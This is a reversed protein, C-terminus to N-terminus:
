EGMGLLAKADEVHESLREEDDSFNARGLDIIKARNPDDKSRVINRLELDNHLIGAQSLAQVGRVASQNLEESLNEAGIDDFDDSERELYTMAVGMHTSYGRFRPLFEVLGAKGTIADYLKAENEMEDAVHTMSPDQQLKVLSWRKM